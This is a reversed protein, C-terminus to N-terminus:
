LKEVIYNAVSTCRHAMAWNYANEQLIPYIRERDVYEIKSQLEEASNFAIVNEMDRLGHPACIQPKKDLQYFCPVTWNAAIEYHRMCEWGAKKMTVAFRSKAIDDYYKGEDAFAYKVQCSARIEHIKYAEECQVHKAFLKEKPLPSKRVKFDPISFSIPRIKPIKHATHQERKYYQGLMYARKLIQGHDEGDLFVLKAGCRLLVGDYFFRKFLDKERWISGFIVVEFEKKVLREAINERDIPIDDLSKWVTFGCGYMENSSKEYTTYLARKKPYDVVDAGFLVRLGILVLDQM